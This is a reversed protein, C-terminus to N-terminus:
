GGIVRPEAYAADFLHDGLSTGSTLAIYPGEAVSTTLVGTSSVTSIAVAMTAFTIDTGYEVIIQISGALGPALTWSVRMALAVNTAISIASNVLTTFTGLGATIKDLRIIANPPGNSHLSIAYAQGSAGTMNEQSQQFLFGWRDGNTHNPSRFLCRAMGTTFGTPPTNRTINAYQGTTGNRNMRLSATGKIRNISPDLSVLMGVNSKFTNWNDPYAV